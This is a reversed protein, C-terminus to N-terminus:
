FPKNIECVGFLSELCLNHYLYCKRLETIDDMIFFVIDDYYPILSIVHSLWVEIEDPIDCLFSLSNTHRLIYRIMWIVHMIIDFNTWHELTFNMMLSIVARRRSNKLDINKEGVVLDTLSDFIDQVFICRTCCNYSIVYRILEHYDKKHNESITKQGENGEKYRNIIRRQEDDFPTLTIKEITNNHKVNSIISNLSTTHLCVNTLELVRLKPYHIFLSEFERIQPCTPSTCVHAQSFPYARRETFVLIELKSSFFNDSLTCSNNDKSCQRTEADFNLTDPIHLPLTFPHRHLVQVDIDDNNPFYAEVLRLEKLNILERMCRRLEVMSCYIFDFHCLNLVTLSQSLHSQYLPVLSSLNYGDEYCWQRLKLQTLNRTNNVVFSLIEDMRFEIHYPYSHCKHHSDTMVLSTVRAGHVLLFKVLYTNILLMSFRSVFLTMNKEKHSIKHIFLNVLRGYKIKEIHKQKQEQEQEQEQKQEEEEQEQEMVELLRYGVDHAYGIRGDFAMISDYFRTDSIHRFIADVALSHLTLPYIIM